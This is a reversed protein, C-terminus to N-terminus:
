ERTFGIKRIRKRPCSSLARNSLSRTRQPVITATATLRTYWRADRRCGNMGPVLSLMKFCTCAGTHSGVLGCLIVCGFHKESSFNVVKFKIIRKVAGDFKLRTKGRDEAQVCWQLEPVTTQVFQHFLPQVAEFFIRRFALFGAPKLKLM